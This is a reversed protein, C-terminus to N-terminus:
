SAAFMAAFMSAPYPGTIVVHGDVALEDIQPQERSDPSVVLRAARFGALGIRARLERTQGGLVLGSEALRTGQPIPTRWFVHRTSLQLTVSCKLDTKLPVAELVQRVGCAGLVQRLARGHPGDGIAYAELVDLDDATLAGGASAVGLAADIARALSDSPNHVRMKGAWIELLRREGHSVIRAPRGGTTVQAFLAVLARAVEDDRDRRVMWEDITACHEASLEEGRSWADLSADIASALPARAADDPCSKCFAAYTQLRQKFWPEEDCTM